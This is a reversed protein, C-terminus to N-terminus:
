KKPKYQLVPDGPKGPTTESFDAIEKVSFHKKVEGAIPKVVTLFDDRTMRASLENVDIVTSSRGKPTHYVYDGYTGEVKEVVYRGMTDFLTKENARIKEQLELVETMLAETDKALEVMETM